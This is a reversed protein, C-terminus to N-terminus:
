RSWFGLLALVGGVVACSLSDYLRRHGGLFAAFDLPPTKPYFFGVLGGAPLVLGLAMLVFSVM